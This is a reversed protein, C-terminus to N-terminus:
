NYYLFKKVLICRRALSSCNMYLNMLDISHRKQRGWMTLAEDTITHPLIFFGFSGSEYLIYVGLLILVFPTILHGYKDITKAILPHRTLYKALLCWVLTMGLFIGVMTLKHAWTLTTFMPVYIAINDGGNAFTVGAVTLVNGYQNNVKGAGPESETLRDKGLLSWLAQVGLYIPFLGLLGIYPAPVFLGILSAVLSTVILAGIGLLQGAIIEKEKFRQNGYFLTLIFIDDINTSAFTLLSTILLEV